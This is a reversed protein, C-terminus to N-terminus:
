LSWFGQFQPEDKLLFAYKLLEALEDTTEVYSLKGQAYKCLILFFFLRNCRYNCCFPERSIM